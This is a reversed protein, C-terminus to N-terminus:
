LEALARTTERIREAEIRDAREEEMVVMDMSGSAAVVGAQVLDCRGRFRLRNPGKQSVEQVSYELQAPLPLLFKHFTTQLSNLIFRRARGSPTLLYREGVALSIQRVAETIVMATVHSGTTHDLVMEQRDSIRLTAKFLDDEVKRLGAILVNEPKRKHVESHYLLEPLPIDKLISEPLGHQRLKSRVIEREYDEIGQGPIIVPFPESILEGKLSATFESLSVLDVSNSRTALNDGVVFVVKEPM